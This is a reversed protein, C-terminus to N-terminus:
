RKIKPRKMLFIVVGTIGVASAIGVAILPVIPDDDGGGEGGGGGGGGGDYESSPKSEVTIKIICFCFNNYQDFARVQLWYIGVVLEVKNTITGNSSIQFDITDNILWHDIGSIDSANLDYRFENGYIITQNTPPEDWSPITNITTFSWISSIISTLGDDVIVYWSYLTGESLGSWSVSATGGSSVGSDTGILSDDSADYFHVDM